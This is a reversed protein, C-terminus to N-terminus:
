LEAAWNLLMGQLVLRDEDNLVHGARKIVEHHSKKAVELCAQISEPKVSRDFESEVVTVTGEFKNLPRLISSEPLAEVGAEPIAEHVMPARLFLSQPTREKCLRIALYGGYSSGMLGIRGAEVGPQQALFDYATKADKVHDESNLSRLVGESEGHGGLDLTLCTANIANTIDVAYRLYRQRIGRYGNLFLTAVGSPEEPQFLTAVVKRETYTGPEVELSVDQINM